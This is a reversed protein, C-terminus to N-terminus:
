IYISGGWSLELIVSAPDQYINYLYDRSLMQNLFGRTELRQKFDRLLIDREPWLYCERQYTDIKAKMVIDLDKTKDYFSLGSQLTRLELPCVIRKLEDHYRFYRKLFTVDDLTQFPTDIDKKLSDTFGMGLSNFFALMSIAHLREINSKVGVLKDDGYVYDIIDSVFRVTNGDGIEREYWMATYFRNVMSNLIATLYHGSPMSHTTVYLDDQVAVISRIANDLILRCIKKHPTPVFELIVEKIADQVMNNMSGDWKAIDGAFVGKCARLNDYMEPWEVFPNMGVMINNYRRNSM